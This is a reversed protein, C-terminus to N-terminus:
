TFSFIKYKHLSMKLKIQFSNVNDLILYGDFSCSALKGDKLLSIQYILGSHSKIINSCKLLSMDKKICNEKNELLSLFKKGKLYISQFKEIKESYNIKCDKLNQIVNYNLNNYKEEFEYTNLLQSIFDIELKNM